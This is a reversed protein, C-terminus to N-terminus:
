DGCSIAQVEFSNLLWDYVERTSPPKKAAFFAPDGGGKTQSNEKKQEKEMRKGTM